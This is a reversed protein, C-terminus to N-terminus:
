GLTFSATVPKRNLVLPSKYTIVKTVYVGGKGEKSYKEGEIISINFPDMDDLDKLYVFQLVLNPHREAVSQHREINGLNLGAGVDCVGYM